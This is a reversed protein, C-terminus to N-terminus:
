HIRSSQSVIGNTPLPQSYLFRSTEDAGTRNGAALLSQSLGIRADFDDQTQVLQQYIPIAQRLEGKWQLTDAKVQLAERNDPAQKLVKEAEDIAQNLEGNWSLVRGLQVRADVNAPNAALVANLEEKARTLRDAWSLYIAMRVREDATFNERALDLASIYAAAAKDFDNAAVYQDGAQKYQRASAAASQSAVVPQSTEGSNAACPFSLWLFLTVGFVRSVVHDRRAAAILKVAAVWKVM